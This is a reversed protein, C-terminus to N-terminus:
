YISWIPRCAELSRHNCYANFFIICPIFLVGELAENLRDTVQKVVRSMEIQGHQLIEEVVLEASDGYLMKATYIYRPFRLRVLINEVNISYETFGGKTNLGFEVM